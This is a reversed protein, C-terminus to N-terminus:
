FKVFPLIKKQFVIFVFLSHVNKPFFWKRENRLNKSLSLFTFSKNVLRNKIACFPLFKIGQWM